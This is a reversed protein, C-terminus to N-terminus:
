LLTIFIIINQSFFARTRGPGISYPGGTVGTFMRKMAHLSNASFSVPHGLFTLWLSTDM